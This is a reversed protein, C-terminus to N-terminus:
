YFSKLTLSGVKVDLDFNPSATNIGVRKTFTDGKLNDDNVILPATINVTSTFTGTINKADIREVSEAVRAQIAYPTSPVPIYARNGGIELAFRPDSINFYEPKLPEINGLVISCTGRIFLVGTHFESWEPRSKNGSYISITINYRGDLLGEEQSSLTTQFTINMPTNAAHNIGNSFFLLTLFLSVILQKIKM